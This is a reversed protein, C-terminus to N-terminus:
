LVFHSIPLPPLHIYWKKLKFCHESSPQPPIFDLRKNINIKTPVRPKPLDERSVTSFKVGIRKERSKLTIKYSKCFNRPLLKM